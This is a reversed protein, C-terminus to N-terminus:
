AAAFLQKRRMRLAGGLGGIGLLMMAWTAPEPVGTVQTLSVGDLLAFAPAPQTGTGIALFSLVENTSTATFTLSATQWGTFCESCNTLVTTDQAPGGGLSVAWGETQQGTFGNQGPSPGQQAGAYDFSVTYQDGVTLGSISQNISSNNSNGSNPYGPDIGIFDGGNPSATVDNYLALTGGPGTDYPGGTSCPSACPTAGAEFVWAYSNAQSSLYWSSETTTESSYSGIQGLDSGTTVTSSVDEFGGNTVLNAASAGGATALAIVGATAFALSRISGRV